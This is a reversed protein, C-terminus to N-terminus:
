PFTVSSPLAILRNTMLMSNSQLLISSYVCVRGPKCIAFPQSNFLEENIYDAGAPFNGSPLRV